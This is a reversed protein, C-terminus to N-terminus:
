VQVEPATENIEEPAIGAESVGMPVDSSQTLYAVINFGIVPLLALADDDEKREEEMSLRKRGYKSLNGSEARM